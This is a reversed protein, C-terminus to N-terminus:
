IVNPVKYFGKQFKCSGVGGTYPYISLTSIGYDRVYQM